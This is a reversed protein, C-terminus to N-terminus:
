RRRVHAFVNPPRPRPALAARPPSAPRTAPSCAPLFRAQYILSCAPSSFWGVNTRLAKVKAADAEAQEETINMKSRLVTDIAKRGEEGVNTVAHHACSARNQVDGAGGSGDGGRAMRGAKLAGAARDNMADSPTHEALLTRRRLRRRAEFFGAATAPEEEDSSDGGAEGAGSSAEGAGGGGEQESSDGSGVCLLGLEDAESWADAIATMAARYSAHQVEASKGSAQHMSVLRSELKGTEQNRRSYIHAFFSRQLFGAEDAIYCYDGSADELIWEGVQVKHLEGGIAPVAKFYTAGPVRKLLRMEGKIKRQYSPLKIGFFTAFRCMLGPVKSAAIHNAAILELGLFFVEPTYQGKRYFKSEPPEAIAQFKRRLVTQIKLLARAEALERELGDIREATADSRWWSASAAREDNLRRQAEQARRKDLAADCLKRQNAKRRAGLETIKAQKARLEGLLGTVRHSRLSDLQSLM